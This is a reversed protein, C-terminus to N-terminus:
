GSLHAEGLGEISIYGLSDATVYRAIEDTSHSAAILEQRSPTDIGYFCPWKTPPSSIRMHVEAAGADKLMRVIKKAEEAPPVMTSFILQALARIEITTVNALIEPGRLYM